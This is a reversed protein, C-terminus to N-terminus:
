GRHLVHIEKATGEITVRVDRVRGEEEGGGAARWPEAEDTADTM